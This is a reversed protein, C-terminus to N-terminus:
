VPLLGISTMDIRPRVRNVYVATVKHLYHIHARDIENTVWDWVFDQGNYSVGSVEGRTEGSVNQIWNWSTEIQVAKESIQQGMCAVIILEGAAYAGSQMSTSNVCGAQIVAAVTRAWSATVDGPHVSLTTKFSVPPPDLWVGSHKALSHGNQVINVIGRKTPAETPFKAVEPAYRVYKRGLHFDFGIRQGAGVLPPRIPRLTALRYKITVRWASKSLQTANPDGDDPMDFISTPIDVAANIHTVCDDLTIAAGTDDYVFIPLSWSQSSGSLKEFIHHIAM